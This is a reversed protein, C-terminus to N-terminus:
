WRWFAALEVLADVARRTLSGAEVAAAAQLPTEKLLREGSYIRLAGVKQGAAVPVTLPGRYVIEARLGGSAGSEVLVDVPEPSVLAVSGSAGGYVSAEGIVENAAFVTKKTFGTFAWDLLKRTDGLRAKEDPFGALAAFVRRGGREASVVTSYGFGEAYGAALGDVGTTGALLPNRNRQRIRNWEFDPEAYHAYGAPFNLRIHQALTVLDRMTVANGDAPLGTANVFRAGELGLARAEETMRAAFRTEDGEMGEALIICADNAFQVTVARVLDAVAVDSNLKAFMAATGSPAGGTRWAHESVRFATEPTIEGKDIAAFVVAMTMLKALSAPPVVETEARSFLVTGSEDDIVYAQKARIETLPAVTATQAAAGSALGLGLVAISLLTAARM